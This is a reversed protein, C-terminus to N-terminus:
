GWVNIKIPVFNDWGGYGLGLPYIFSLAFTDLQKIYFLIDITLWGLLDEDVKQFATVYLHGAIASIAVYLVLALFGHFPVVAWVIGLLASLIQRLWYLVDLLDDKDPWDSGAVVSKSIITRIDAEKVADDLPNSLSKKKPTTPM